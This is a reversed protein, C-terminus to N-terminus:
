RGNTVLMSSSLSLSLSLSLSPGSSGGKRGGNKEVFSWSGACFFKKESGEGREEGWFGLFVKTDPNRDNTSPSPGFFIYNQAIRGM